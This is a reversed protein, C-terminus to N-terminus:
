SVFGLIKLEALYYNIIAYHSGLDNLPHIM